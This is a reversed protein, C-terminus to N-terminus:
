TDSVDEGGDTQERRHKVLLGVGVAILALPWILEWTQHGGLFLIGLGTLIGGPVLLGRDRKGLAYMLLFGIGPGILFFPWLDDMWWWGYLSCYLFLAGYVLLITGPIILGIDSRNRLWSVWFVAGGAIMLWPWMTDWRLYILNLNDALFLAGVVILLLGTIISRNGM